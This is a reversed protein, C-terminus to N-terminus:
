DNMIWTGTKRRIRPRLEIGSRHADENPIGKVAPPNRAYGDRNGSHSPAAYEHPSFPGTLSGFLRVQRFSPDFM